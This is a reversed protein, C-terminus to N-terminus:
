FLPVSITSAQKALQGLRSKALTPAKIRPSRSARCSKGFLGGQPTSQNGLDLQYPQSLDEARCVKELTQGPGTPDSRTVMSCARVESSLCRLKSTSLLEPACRDQSAAVCFSHRTTTEQIKSTICSFEPILHNVPAIRYYELACETEWIGFSL